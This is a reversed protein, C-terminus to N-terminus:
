DVSQYITLVPVNESCIPVFYAFGILIQAKVPVSFTGIDSCFTNRWFRMKLVSFSTQTGTQESKTGTLNYGNLRNQTL